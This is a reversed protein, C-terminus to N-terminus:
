GAHIPRGWITRSCAKTYLEAVRKGARRAAVFNGHGAKASTCAPPIRQQGRRRLIRSWAVCRAIRAQRIHAIVPALRSRDACAIGADM